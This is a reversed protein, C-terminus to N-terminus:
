QMNVPGHNICRVMMVELSDQEEAESATQKEEIFGGIINAIMGKKNMRKM